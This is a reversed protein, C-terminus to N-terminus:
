AHQTEQALAEGLVDRKRFPAMLFRGILKSTPMWNIYVNDRENELIREALWPTVTEVRDAIINLFRKARAMNEPDLSNMLLDTTVIGPSVTGLKIPLDGRDKILAKHLYTIAAKTTGYATNGRMAEGGSGLGKFNYIYGYGQVMMGRMAVNSGNISGIINANIVNQLTEADIEWLPERPAILAANNLWIDVSDFADKAHDWLAQVQAEDSVDCPQGIVRKGYQPQLKALAKDVSAQSRGCIVVNTGRELFQQVLGFGIGRTSGTVVITKM